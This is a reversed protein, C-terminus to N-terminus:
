ASQEAGCAKQKKGKGINIWYKYPPKARTAVLALGGYRFM